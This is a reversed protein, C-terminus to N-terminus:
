VKQAYLIPNLAPDNYMKMQKYLRMKKIGQAIDEYLEGISATMDQEQLLLTNLKEKCKQIHEESADNRQTEERM